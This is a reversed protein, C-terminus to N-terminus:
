FGTKTKNKDKTALIMRAYRYIDLMLDERKPTDKVKSIAHDLWLNESVSEIEKDLDQTSWSNDLLISVMVTFMPVNINTRTREDLCALRAMVEQVLMTNSRTILTVKREIDAYKAFTANHTLSYETKREM